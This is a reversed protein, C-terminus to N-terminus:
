GADGGGSQKVSSLPSKEVVGVLIKRAAPDLSRWAELIRDEFNNTIYSASHRNPAMLRLVGDNISHLTLRDLWATIEVQKMRGSQALREKIAWWPGGSKSTAKPKRGTAKARERFYREFSSVGKPPSSAGIPAPKVASSNTVETPLLTLECEAAVKETLKQSSQREIDCEAAVKATNKRRYLECEAAVKEVPMGCHNSRRGGHRIMLHGRDRLAKMAGWVLRKSLGLEAALTDQSVFTEATNNNFHRGIAVAVRTAVNPLAPSGDEILATDLAIMEHWVARMLPTVFVKAM